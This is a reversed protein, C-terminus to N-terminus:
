WTSWLMHCVSLVNSLQCEDCLHDGVINDLPFCPVVICIQVREPCQNQWLDLLSLILILHVRIRTRFDCTRALLQIPLFCVETECLEVSASFIENSAPKRM